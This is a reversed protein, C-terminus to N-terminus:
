CSLYQNTHKLDTLTLQVQQVSAAAPRGGPNVCLCQRMILPSQAHDAELGYVKLTPVGAAWPEGTCEMLLCGLGYIDAKCTIGASTEVSAPKVWQRSIADLGEARSDLQIYDELTEDISRIGAERLIYM